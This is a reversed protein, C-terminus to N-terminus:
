EVDVRVTVSDPEGEIFKRVAARAIGMTAAADLGGGVIGGVAPLLDALNVVGTKGFKTIFRFGLKENIKTLTKGPVKQLTRNFGKEGFKRVPQKLAGAAQDALFAWYVRSQVQDSHIDWGGMYAIAAVMRMQIYSVSVINAPIAVPLTILGGLGNVFGSTGCKLVQDRVLDRVADDRSKARQLYEKAFDEVPKSVKPVGQLVAKYIADLTAGADEVSIEDKGKAM